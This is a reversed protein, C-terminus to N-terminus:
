AGTGPTTTTTDATLAPLYDACRSCPLKCRLKFVGGAVDTFVMVPYRTRSNISCAYVSTCDANMLPFATTSDGITIVVPATVTTETPISQAVVICYPQRNTYSGDPLNITLTGDAFTVSESIIIRQCIRNM